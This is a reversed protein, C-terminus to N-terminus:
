KFNLINEKVDKASYIEINFSQIFAKNNNYVIIINKNLGFLAYASCGYAPSFAGNFTFSLTEHIADSWTLNLSLYERLKLIINTHVVKLNKKTTDM